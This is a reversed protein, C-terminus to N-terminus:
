IFYLKKIEEVDSIASNINIDGRRCFNFLEITLPNLDINIGRWGLKYMAYTNNHRVPHFCGIDVFKGKYNETETKGLQANATFSLLLSIILFLRVM